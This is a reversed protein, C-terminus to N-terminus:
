NSNAGRRKVMMVIVVPVLLVATVSSISVETPAFVTRAIGDCFLTIVAGGLFAGPIMIKPSSTKTLGGILHPVAIGVFSVPGAFATVCAALLSSLLILMVRLLTINVGMTKAYSEGLRYAGVPKIMLVSVILCVTIIAAMIKVDQWDMGSLSGMSWNHLNVINSDDAFTVILDTIASCIYGTMIGCIVLISMNKVKVSVALVFAMALMAGAFASLVLGAANLHIGRELLFILSLAVALKAGSSIGLVFPGVIPNAFFTQLLYGSLALGGGLFVASLVRPMRINIIINYDTGDQVSGFVISLAREFPIGISGMFTNWAMLVLLLVSICIFTLLCRRKNM